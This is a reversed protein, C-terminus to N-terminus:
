GGQTHYSYNSPSQSDLRKKPAPPWSYRRRFQLALRWHATAAAGAGVFPCRIRSRLERLHWSLNYSGGHCGGGRYCLKGRRHWRLRAAPTASLVVDGGVRGRPEM